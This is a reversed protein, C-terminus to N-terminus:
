KVIREDDNGRLIVDSDFHRQLNTFLRSVVNGCSGQPLYIRMWDKTLEINVKHCTHLDIAKIKVYDDELFDWVGWLRFPFNCSTLKDVFLNLDEISKKFEILMCNGTLKFGSEMKVIDMRYNEEISKIIESYQTKVKNILNFHSDVSDGKMAVFKGLYSINEKIFGSETRYKIGVSSLSIGQRIKPNNKLDNIIENSQGGWFRMSVKQLKDEYTEDNKELFQNEFKLSFGTEKGLKSIQQLSTSSLWPFDLLSPNYSVLDLIAKESMSSSHLSHIIWFRKDSTDLYMLLPERNEATINLKKLSSDDTNFISAKTPAETNFALNDGMNSEIIFSKPKKDAKFEDEEDDTIKLSNELVNRLEKRNAINPIEM